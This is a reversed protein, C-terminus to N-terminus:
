KEKKYRYIGVTAAIIIGICAISVFSTANLSFGDNRSVSYVQIAIDISEGILCSFAIYIDGSNGVEAFLPTSHHNWIADGITHTEILNGELDYSRLSYARDFNTCQVLLHTRDDPTKILEVPLFSYYWGNPWIESYSTSWDLKDSSDKHFLVFETPYGPMQITSRYAGYYGGEGDSEIQHLIGEDTDTGNFYCMQSEGYHDRCLIRDEFVLLEGSSTYRSWPYSLTRNWMFNGETDYKLLSTKVPTVSNYDYDCCIVYISGNNQVGVATGVQQSEEGWEVQWLIEGFPSWKTLILNRDTGNRIYGTTYIDGEYEDMSKVVTDNENLEMWLLGLSANYKLLFQHTIRPGNAPSLTYGTIYVSGDSSIIIGNCIDDVNDSANQHLPLVDGIKSTYSQNIQPSLHSAPDSRVDLYVYIDAFNVRVSVSGNYFSWPHTSNFYDFRYTPALGIALKASDTPDQQVGEEEVMGEFIEKIAIYNLPIRQEQYLNSYVDGRTEYAKTWNGSSDIIWIYTSFMLFNAEQIGAEFDGTLWTSTNLLIDVYLPLQEYSWSFEQYMYVFDNYDPTPHLISHGRFDLQTGPNHDWNLEAYSNKVESSNPFYEFSFESSTGNIVANPEEDFDPDNLLGQILSVAPDSREILGPSGIVMM